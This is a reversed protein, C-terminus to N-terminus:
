KLTTPFGPPLPICGGEIVEGSVEKVEVTNLKKM